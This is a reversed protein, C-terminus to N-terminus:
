PSTWSAQDPTLHIHSLDRQQQFFAQKRSIRLFSDHTVRKNGSCPPLAVLSHRQPSRSHHCTHLSSSPLLASVKEGIPCWRYHGKSIENLREAYAQLTIEQRLFTTMRATDVGSAAMEQWPVRSPRLTEDRGGSEDFAAELSTRSVRRSTQDERGPLKTERARSGLFAGNNGREERRTEHRAEPDHGM